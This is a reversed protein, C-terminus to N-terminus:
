IESNNVNGTAIQNCAADKGGIYVHYTGDAILETRISGEWTKLTSTIDYTGVRAVEKRWSNGRLRGSLNASNVKWASPHILRRYGSPGLVQGLNILLISRYSSHERIRIPAKEPSPFSISQQSL